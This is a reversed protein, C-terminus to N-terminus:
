CYLTNTDRKMLGQFSNYLMPNKRNTIHVPITTDGYSAVLCLYYYIGTINNEIQEVWHKFKMNDIDVFFITTAVPSTLNEAGAIHLVQVIKERLEDAEWDQKNKTDYSLCYTKM